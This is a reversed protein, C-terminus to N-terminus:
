LPFRMRAGIDIQDIHQLECGGGRANVPVLSTWRLLLSLTKCRVAFGFPLEQSNMLNMARGFAIIRPGLVLRVNGIYGVFVITTFSLSLASIEVIYGHFAM